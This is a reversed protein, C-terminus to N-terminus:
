RKDQQKSFRISYIVHQVKRSNLYKLPVKYNQLSKTRDLSTNKQTTIAIVSLTLAHPAVFSGDTVDVGSGVSVGIGSGVSVAVGTTGSAINTKGAV